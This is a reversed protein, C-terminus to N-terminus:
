DCLSVSIITQTQYLSFYTPDLKYSSGGPLKRKQGKNETPHIFFKRSDYLLREMGAGELKEAVQQYAIILPLLSPLSYVDANHVHKRYPPTPLFAAGDQM